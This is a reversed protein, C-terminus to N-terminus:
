SLKRGIGQASSSVLPQLFLACYEFSISQEPIGQCTLSGELWGFKRRGGFYAPMLKYKDVLNSSMSKLIFLVKTVIRSWGHIGLTSIPWIFKNVGYITSLLKDLLIM